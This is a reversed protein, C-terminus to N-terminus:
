RPLSPQGAAKSPTWHRLAACDQSCDFHPAVATGCNIIPRSPDCKCPAQAHTGTRTEVPLCAGRVPEATCGTCLLLEARRLGGRGRMIQISDYGRAMARSCYLKDGFAAIGEVDIGGEKAPVRTFPMPGIDRRQKSRSM